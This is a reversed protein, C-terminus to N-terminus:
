PHNASGNCSVRLQTANRILRFGRIDREIMYIIAM